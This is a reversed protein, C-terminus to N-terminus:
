ECGPDRFLKQYVANVKIPMERDPMECGNSQVSKGRTKM